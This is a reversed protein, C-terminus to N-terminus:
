AKGVISASGFSAMVLSWQCFISTCRALRAGRPLVTLLVHCPASHILWRADHMTSHHWLGELLARSGEM